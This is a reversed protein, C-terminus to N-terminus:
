SRILGFGIDSDVHVLTCLLCSPNACSPERLGHHPLRDHLRPSQIYFATTLQQMTVDPVEAGANSGAIRFLVAYPKEGLNGSNVDPILVM